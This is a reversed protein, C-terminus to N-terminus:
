ILPGFLRAVDEVLGRGRKVPGLLSAEALSSEFWGALREIEAPCSFFSAIEYDLLLSRMDVNASGLIGIGDDIVAVKAHMMAPQFCFVKGGAAAIERLYSAGAFDAVRHNSRAPVLIRVDVGRRAALAFAKVLAEDPVFYPTAIWLRRRAAFVATLLADYLRDSAVDPGSGVVQVIATGAAPAAVPSAAPPESATAAQHTAFRWDSRFVVAVDEVAPGSLRMSLDRWRRPDPTPGMYEHAINMGGLIATQGDAIVVKRHLRLNAHGRFPLHMVPMFWALKGGARTLRALARRDSRFRFFSDILVRVEVGAQARAILREVIAAGVEDGALILTSLDLTRTAGDIAAVLAAFAAEGTDLLDVQNGVRAPPTGLALLMRELDSAAEPVPPADPTEGRPQYLPAKLAAARKVKRGGLVFYLPVGVYPALVIALMWALTSGPARRSRLVNAVLILAM